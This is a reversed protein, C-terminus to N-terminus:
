EEPSVGVAKFLGESSPNIVFEGGTAIYPGEEVFDIWAVPRDNVNTGDIHEYVIAVAVTENALNGFDIPFNYLARAERGSQEWIRNFGPLVQRSYSPDTCEQNAGPAFLASLNANEGNFTPGNSTAHKLLLVRYDRGPGVWGLGGHLMQRGAWNYVEAM